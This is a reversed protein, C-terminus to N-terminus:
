PCCDRLFQPKLKDIEIWEEDDTFRLTSILAADRMQKERKLLYFHRFHIFVFSVYGNSLIINFTGGTKLLDSYAKRCGEIM